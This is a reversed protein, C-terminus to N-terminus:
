NRLNLPKVGEFSAESEKKELFIKDFLPDCSILIKHDDAYIIRQRLATQPLKPAVPFRPDPTRNTATM